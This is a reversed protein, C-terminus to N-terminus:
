NIVDLKAAFKTPVISLEFACLGFVPVDINEWEALVVLRVIVYSFGNSAWATCLKLCAIEYYEFALGIRLFLVLVFM